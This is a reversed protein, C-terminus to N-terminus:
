RSGGSTKEPRRAAVDMQTGDAQRWTGKLEKKGAPELQLTEGQATTLRLTGREWTLREIPLDGSSGQLTGRLTWVNGKVELTWEQTPSEAEGAVVRWTGQVQDVDDREDDTIEIRDGDVWVELVQTDKAFLDGDTVTLQAVKGSAITGYHEDVGLLTAPQTTVAALAVAAPLGADIAQRINDRFSSRKDLGHSTLAFPVAAEHLVAANSAAKEWHELAELEVRVVTDENSVDPAKPYAVPLVVPLGSEQLTGVHQYEEGNGVLVANLQLEQALSITRLTGLVDGTVFWVPMPDKADRTAALADWSLNSQPKEFGGQRSAYRASADMAWSADLFTQRVLAVAGMLSSPYTPNEDSWTSHEFRVIQAVDPRVIQEAPTGPRLGVFASQGCFIGQHQVLHAATFGQRQLAAIQKDSLLSSEVVRREARVRQNPHRMGADTDDAEPADGGKAQTDDADIDMFPEILGAYVTLGRMDWIRADAPPEVKGVAEIIGDRVVITADQLVKGPAPIVRAGVLAHVRPTRDEFARGAPTLGLVLLAGVVAVERFRVRRM